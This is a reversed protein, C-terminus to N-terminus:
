PIHLRGAGRHHDINTLLDMLREATREAYTASVRFRDRNAITIVPLDNLTGHTRITVELSDAKKSNRNATILVLREHRCFEWVESDPTSNALGFDGFFFAGIALEEWYEALWCSQVYRVIREVDEVVDADSLIGHM